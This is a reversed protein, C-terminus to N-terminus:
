MPILGSKRARKQMLVCGAHMITVVEAHFDMWWAKYCDSKIDSEFTIVALCLQHIGMYFIASRPQAGKDVKKTSEWVFKPTKRRNQCTKRIYIRTNNQRSFAARSQYVPKVLVTRLNREHKAQGGGGCKEKRMGQFNKCEWTPRSEWWGVVVWARVMAKEPMLYIADREILAIYFCWDGNEFGTM